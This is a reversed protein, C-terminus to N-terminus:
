ALAGNFGRGLVGAGDPAHSDGTVGFGRGTHNGWVGSHLPTSCRGVVGNNKGDGEVGNGELAFGRVGPGSGVNAGDVGPITSRSGGRIPSDPVLAKLLEESIVIEIEAM